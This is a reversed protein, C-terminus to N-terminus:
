CRVEFQASCHLCFALEQKFELLIKAKAGAARSWVGCCQGKSVSATDLM